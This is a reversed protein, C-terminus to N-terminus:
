GSGTSPHPKKGAGRRSVAREEPLLGDPKWLLIAIVLAGIMALRAASVQTAFVAPLQSAFIETASWIGWVVLAGLLAGKNNGSGGAILMVWVLFTGAVPEFASPVIFQVSHAYLAGGLGMVMSGLVLAQLRFRAVDKGAALAATERERVARLVRGWPAKRIRENAWYVAAVAAAVVLLYVAQRTRGSALVDQFPQPIAFLGRVGNTAWDENKIVLRVIEAIGITAIALYDERLQITILGVALALVGAVAMAAAMGALIPWGFGGLHEAAPATTLIASTYAGVAFFAAIGINFLGTYGWQINLGLALVGYIGVFTLFSVGYALLGGLEM